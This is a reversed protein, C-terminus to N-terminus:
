RPSGPQRGQGFKIEVILNQPWQDRPRETRVIISQDDDEKTATLSLSPIIRQELIMRRNDSQQMLVFGFRCSNGSSWVLSVVRCALLSCLCRSFAVFITHHPFLLTDVNMPLNYM